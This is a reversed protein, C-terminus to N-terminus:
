LGYFEKEIRGVMYNIVAQPLKDGQALFYRRAPINKKTSGYQHVAAYPIGKIGFEATNKNIKQYWGPGGDVARKLRGTRGILNALRVGLNKQKWKAYKKSLGKWRMPIDDPTIRAKFDKQMNHKFAEVTKELIPSLVKGKDRMLKLRRLAKNMGEIKLTFVRGKYTGDM